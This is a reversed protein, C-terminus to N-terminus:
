FTLVFTFRSTPFLPQKFQYPGTKLAKKDRAGGGVSLIPVRFGLNYDTNGPKKRNHNASRCSQADRNWSGARNVRNSGVLQGNSRCNLVACGPPCEADM